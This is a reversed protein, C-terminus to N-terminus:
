GWKAAIVAIKVASESRGTMAALEGIYRRWEDPCHTRLANRWAMKITTKM